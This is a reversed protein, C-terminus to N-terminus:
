IHFMQSICDQSSNDQWGEQYESCQPFIHLAVPSHDVKSGLKGYSHSFLKHYSTIIDTSYYMYKLPRMHVGFVFKHM